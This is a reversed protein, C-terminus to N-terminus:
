FLFPRCAIGNNFVFYTIYRYRGTGVSCRRLLLIKEPLPSPPDLADEQRVEGGMFFSLVIFFLFKFYSFSFSFFLCSCTFLFITHPFHSVYEYSQNPPVIYVYSPVWSDTLNIYIKM